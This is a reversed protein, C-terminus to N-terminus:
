KLDLIYLNEPLDTQNLNTLFYLRHGDPSPFVFDSAFPGSYVSAHNTNDYEFITIRGGVTSILHRSTPYWQPNNTYLGHYYAKFAEITELPTLDQQLLTSLSQRPAGTVTSAPDVVEPILLQKVLPREASATAVSALLYNTDEKLDYVYVNNPQLSRNQPTSNVSALPPLLAEPIDLQKTATYLMKEGDPSFYINTASETAVNIMFQPLKAILDQDRKILDQEWESFIFPLRVTVDPMSSIQNLRTSDLLYSARINIGNDSPFVVLIQRSDPSWSIVASALDIGSESRAIQSAKRELGLPNASTPLVYLGNNEAVSSDTVLYAIKNSDPSPTPIQSGSTTLATLSPVSPFLRANTLTVLEREVALQKEWPIFGERTIRVLYNGPLLNVTDNTTTVLKGDIYVASQEPYSSAALLGTGEFTAVGGLQPRYGRAFYIALVTGAVLFFAILLTILM